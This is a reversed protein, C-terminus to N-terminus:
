NVINWSGNSGVKLPFLVDLQHFLENNYWNLGTDFNKKEEDNWRVSM